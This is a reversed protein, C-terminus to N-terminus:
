IVILQFKHQALSILQALSVAIAEPANDTGENLLHFTHFSRLTPAGRDLSLFVM